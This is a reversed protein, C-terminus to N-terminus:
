EVQRMVHHYVFGQLYGVGSGGEKVKGGGEKRGEKRGEHLTGSGCSDRKGEQM